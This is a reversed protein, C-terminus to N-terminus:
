TWIEVKFTTKKERTKIISSKSVKRTCIWAIEESFWLELKGLYEGFENRKNCSSVKWFIYKKCKQWVILNAAFGLISIGRNPVQPSLSLLAVSLRSKQCTHPLM